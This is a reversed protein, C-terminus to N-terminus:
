PTTESLYMKTLEATRNENMEIARKAYILPAISGGAYGSVIVEINADRYELWESQAAALLKAREEPLAESLQELAKGMMFESGKLHMSEAETLQAQTLGQALSTM